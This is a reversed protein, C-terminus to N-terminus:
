RFGITILALARAFNLSRAIALFTQFRRVKTDVHSPSMSGVVDTSWSPGRTVDATVSPVGLPVLSATSKSYFQDIFTNHDCTCVYEVM